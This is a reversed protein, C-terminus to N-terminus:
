WGVKGYLTISVLSEGPAVWCRPEYRTWLNEGFRTSNEKLENCFEDSFVHPRVRQPRTAYVALRYEHVNVLRARWGADLSVWYGCFGAKQEISLALGGTLESLRDCLRGDGWPVSYHREVQPGPGGGFRSRLGEQDKAILEFDDPVVLSDVQSHMDGFTEPPGFVLLRFSVLSLAGVALVAALGLM